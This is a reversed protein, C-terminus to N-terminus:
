CTRVNMKRASVERFQRQTVEQSDPGNNLKRSDGRGRQGTGRVGGGKLRKGSEAGGVRKM